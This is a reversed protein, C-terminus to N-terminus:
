SRDHERVHAWLDLGTKLLTLVVLAAVPAGLLHVFFAGSLVTLHLAVVRAYPRMMQQFPTRAVYQRRGVYNTWFSLGHSSFLSIMAVAMTKSAESRGLIIGQWTSLGQPAFLSTLLVGHVLWFLGFHIIFFPLTTIKQTKLSTTQNEDPTKVMGIKFLNFFGIVGNELWYVAVTEFLSWDFFLVGALPILNAVILSLVASRSSTM